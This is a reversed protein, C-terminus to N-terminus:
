PSRRPAPVSGALSEVAPDAAAVERVAVWVATPRLQGRADLRTVWHQVLTPHGVQALVDSAPRTTTMSM